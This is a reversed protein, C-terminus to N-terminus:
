PDVVGMGPSALVGVCKGQEDRVVAGTGFIGKHIDIAADVNLKLFGNEPKKWKRFSSSPTLGVATQITNAEREDVKQVRLGEWWVSAKIVLDQFGVVDYGHLRRNREHWIQWVLVSFWELENEKAVLSVHNFLSLFDIEKWVEPSPIAHWIRSSTGLGLNSFRDAVSNGERLVHSCTFSIHQIRTLCNYWVIRLPWLPVFSSFSLCQLVATSDSEVWLHHWGCHFAFDVGIIFGILKSFFTTQTGFGQCYGGIFRGFNDRFIGGCATLGPNGKALGDTNLKFWPYLPPHWLVIQPAIRRKVVPTVGLRLKNRSKWIAMLAFLGSAFWLNILQPSFAKGTFSSRLDNFTIAFFCLVALLGNGCMNHLISILLYTHCIRWIVLLAFSALQSWQFVVANFKIM